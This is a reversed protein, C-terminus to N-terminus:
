CVPASGLGHTFDAGHLSGLIGFGGETRGRSFVAAGRPMRDGAAEFRLGVKEVGGKGKRGVEVPRGGRSVGPLAKEKGSELGDDAFEPVATAREAHACPYALNRQSAAGRDVADTARPDDDTRDSSM